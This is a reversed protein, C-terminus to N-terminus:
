IYSVLSYINRYLFFFFLGLLSTISIVAISINRQNKQRQEDLESEAKLTTIEAEKKESQYKEEIEHLKTLNTVSDIEWNLSNMKKYCLYAGKHDGLKELIEIEHKLIMMEMHDSRFDKTYFKASDIHTKALDPEAKGAFGESLGLHAEVLLVSKFPDNSNRKYQIVKEFCNIALLHNKLKNQAGGLSLLATYYNNLKDTKLFFQIAPYLLTKAEKYNGLRKLLDARTFANFFHIEFSDALVQLLKVTKDCYKEAKKYDNLIMFGDALGRNIQAQLNINNGVLSDAKM